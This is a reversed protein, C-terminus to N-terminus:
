AAESGLLGPGEGNGHPLIESGPTDEGVPGRHGDVKPMFGPVDQGHPDHLHNSIPDESRDQAYDERMDNFHPCVSAANWDFHRWGSEIKSWVSGTIAYKPEHVNINSGEYSRLIFREKCAAYNTKSFLMRGKRNVKLKMKLNLCDFCNRDTEPYQNPYRDFDLFKKGPMKM